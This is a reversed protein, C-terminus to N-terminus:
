LPTNGGQVKIDVNTESHFMRGWKRKGLYTGLWEPSVLMLMVEEAFGKGGNGYPTVNGTEFERLM